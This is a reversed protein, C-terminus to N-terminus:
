GARSAASRESEVMMLESGLVGVFLKGDFYARSICRVASHGIEERERGIGPRMEEQDFRIWAGSIMM